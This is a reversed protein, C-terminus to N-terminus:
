GRRHEPWFPRDWRSVPNLKALAPADVSMGPRPRPLSILPETYAPAMPTILFLGPSLRTMTASGTVSVGAFFDIVRQALGPRVTGISVEAPRGARVTAGPEVVDAFDHIEYRVVAM